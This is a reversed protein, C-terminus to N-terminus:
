SEQDEYTKRIRLLKELTREHYEYGLAVKYVTSCLSKDETVISELLPAVNM